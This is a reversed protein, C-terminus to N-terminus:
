LSISRIYCPCLCVNYGGIKTLVKKKKNHVVGCMSLSFFLLQTKRPECVDLFSLSSLQVRSLVLSVADHISAPPQALDSGDECRFTVM